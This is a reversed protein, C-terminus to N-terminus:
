KEEREIREVIVHTLEEVGMVINRKIESVVYETDLDINLIDGVSPIQGRIDRIFTITRMDGDISYKLEFLLYM